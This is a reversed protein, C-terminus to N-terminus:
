SRGIRRPFGCSGSVSEPDVRQGDLMAAFVRRQRQKTEFIAGVSM